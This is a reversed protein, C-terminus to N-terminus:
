PAQDSRGLGPWLLVVGTAFHRNPDAGILTGSPLHGFLQGVVALVIVRIAPPRVVGGGIKVSEPGVAVAAFLGGLLLGLAVMMVVLSSGGYSVFPLTLGTIPMLGLTMGTNITMQAFLLAVIGVAVLRGFPDKCQGATLLGGLCCLGFLGWPALAGRSHKM